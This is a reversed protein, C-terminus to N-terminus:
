CSVTCQYKELECSSHQNPSRRDVRSFREKEKCHERCSIRTACCLDKHLTRFSRRGRPHICRVPSLGRLADSCTGSDDSNWISQHQALTLTRVLRWPDTLRFSRLALPNNTRRSVFSRSLRKIYTSIMTQSFKTKSCVSNIIKKKKKKKKKKTM